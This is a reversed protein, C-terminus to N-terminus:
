SEETTAYNLKALADQIKMGGSSALGRAEELQDLGLINKRLLISTFDTPAKAM